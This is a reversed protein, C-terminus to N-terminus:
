SAVYALTLTGDSNCTINVNSMSENDYTDPLRVNNYQPTSYAETPIYNSNNAFNNAKIIKYTTTYRAYSIGQIYNGSNAAYAYNGQQSIAKTGGFVRITTSYTQGSNNNDIVDLKWTGIPVNSISYAGSSNTTAVVRNQFVVSAGSIPNNSSNYVYGSITHYSSHYLPYQYVYMSIDVTKGNYVSAHEPDGWIVAAYKHSTTTSNLIGQDIIYQANAYSAGSPTLIYNDAIRTPKTVATSTPAGNSDAEFLQVWLDEYPIFNTQNTSNVATSTHTFVIYYHTSYGSPKSFQITAYKTMDPYFGYQTNIRNTITSSFAVNSTVAKVTNKNIKAQTIYSYSVAFSLSMFSVLVMIVIVSLVHRNDKM